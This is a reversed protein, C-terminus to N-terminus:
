DIFGLPIRRLVEEIVSHPYAINFRLFQRGEEGFIFGDDFFIGAKERMRRQLELSDLKFTRFDLWMLYTAELPSIVVQPLHQKLTQSILQANAQVYKLMEELWPEAHRYAAICARYALCNLSHFGCDHATHLYKERMAKDPIMINSVQLGAINFTKSPSTCTICHNSTKKVFSEFVHHHHPSFVIDFHIEDSVVLLDNKRCIWAVRELEEPTWVRGVPNHPSCFLFMKAEDLSAKRELDDFDMSYQGQENVLPNAIVKRNTGTITRAFPHYVPPQIIIGDGPKTLAHILYHIASVIGPTTVIFEKEVTWHHRKQMWHIVADYYDPTPETYGFILRDIEEHLAAVIEPATAFDMDAVSVAIMGEAANGMVHKMTEWKSAGHNWRDIINDFDYPM